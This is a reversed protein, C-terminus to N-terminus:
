LSLLFCLREPGLEFFTLDATPGYLTEGIEAGEYIEAASVSKQVHLFHIAGVVFMWLIDKRDSLIDFDVDELDIGILLPDGQAQAIGLGIGPVAEFLLEGLACAEGNAFGVAPRTYM